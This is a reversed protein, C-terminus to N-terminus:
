HSKGVWLSPEGPFLIFAFVMRAIGADNVIGAKVKFNPPGWTADPRSHQM